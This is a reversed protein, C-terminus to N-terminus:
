GVIDESRSWIDWFEALLVVLVDGNRGGSNV